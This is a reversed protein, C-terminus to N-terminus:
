VVEIIRREISNVSTEFFRSLYMSIFLNSSDVAKAVNYQKIFLDRPMLISAAFRNARKEEPTDHKDKYYAATFKKDTNSYDPNGLFDFLYHGLEHASVFRQHNIEDINNVIIIKDHGYIENTDGNISIDGSLNPEDMYKKYAMFDFENIIKVIPTAASKSHYGLISLISLSIEEIESMSFQHNEKNKNTIELLIEKLRENMMSTDRRRYNFMNIINNM